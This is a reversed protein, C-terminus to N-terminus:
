FLWGGPIVQNFSNGRNIRKNSIGYLHSSSPEIASLTRKYSDSLSKMEEYIIGNTRDLTVKLTSSVPSDVKRMNAFVNTRNLTNVLNDRKDCARTITNM